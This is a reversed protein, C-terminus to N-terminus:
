LHLDIEVGGTELDFGFRELDVVAMLRSSSYVAVLMRAPDSKTWYSSEVMYMEMVGLLSADLEVRILLGLVDHVM